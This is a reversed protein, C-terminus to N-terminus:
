ASARFLLVCTLLACDRGWRVSLTDPNEGEFGDFGLRNFSSSTIRGADAFRLVTYASSLPNLGAFPRSRIITQREFLFAFSYPLRVEQATSQPCFLVPYIRGKLRV